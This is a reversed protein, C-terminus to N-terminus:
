SLSGSPSSSSTSSRRAQLAGDSRAPKARAAQRAPGPALMRWALLALAPASAAVVPVIVWVEAADSGATFTHALGALWFLATFRHAIRWRSPGIWKRAYYSLGLVVLGWGAIIGLGTGVTRHPLLFPVTIGGFGPRLWPDGLLLLGHALVLVITTISLAEHLPKLELKRRLSPLPAGRGSLLGASVAFGAAIIAAIGTASSLIWFVHIGDSV